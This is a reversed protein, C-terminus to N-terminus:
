FKFGIGFSPLIPFLAVQNVFPVRVSPPPSGSPVPPYQVQWFFPNARNYANYISFSATFPLGLWEFHYTASLDLKHFAPLRFANRETSLFRPAPTGSPTRGNTLVVFDFQAAPMTYAQGTQYVWTAGFEWREDLKYMLVLSIDHRRDFRPAFPRGFNLDPFTRWAWSLTYGLWGTLQGLQKRLLFEVGYMEGTGATFQDDVPALLSFTADDKFEYVNNQSKYYGEVGLSWEKDFLESQVGLVFQHGNAPKVRETSPFWVDSPVGIDNRIILHVFQNCYSYAAQLTVDENVAFTASLRPELFFYNGQQWWVGRLGGNVTLQPTVNWEDQVFAAAEISENISGGNGDLTFNGASFRGDSEVLGRFRHFIAEVGFKVDHNQVEFWEGQAKVIWDRIQNASFFNVSDGRPSISGIDTSFDYNTQSISFNTFFTSSVIHSWRLNGIANGWSVGVRTDGFSTPQLLDYGWYGSLYLRDNEGLKYNIKANFDYFYYNPINSAINQPLLGRVAAVILDLYLRRGSLMFTANEGIPGEVTLRSNIVSIGGEGSFKEKTGEKMTIDMVSSLRGGYEAPFAGKILKVDRLADNNFVSLLGGLHSPNYMPVGDLLTLNQDPSGGRVYLGSSVESASKVGPMLQMIRFADVEGGLAPLSKMLEPSMEVASIRSTATQSEGERRGQVIVADSKSVQSKLAINVRVGSEGESVAIQKTFEKYGIGRVVLDYKGIPINPIAYFGFKNTRGGTLPKLGQIKSLGERYVMVNIGIVAEGSAAENVTGSVTATPSSPTIGSQAFSYQGICYCLMLVLIHATILFINCQRFHSCNLSYRQNM